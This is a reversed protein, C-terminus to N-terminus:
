LACWGDTLEGANMFYCKDHAGAHLRERVRVMDEVNAFDALVTIIAGKEHRGKRSLTHADECEAGAANLENQNRAVLCVRAGRRAYQVALVRGVGTSAGLILVHEDAPAIKRTRLHASRRLRRVLFFAVLPLTGYLLTQLSIHM